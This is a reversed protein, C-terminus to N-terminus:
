QCSGSGYKLVWYRIRCLRPSARRTIRVIGGGGAACGLAKRARHERQRALQEVAPACRGTRSSPSAGALSSVAASLAAMPANRPPSSILGTLPVRSTSIM